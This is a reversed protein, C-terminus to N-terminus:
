AMLREHGEKKQKAQHRSGQAKHRTYVVVPRELELSSYTSFRSIKEMVHVVCVGVGFEDGVSYV